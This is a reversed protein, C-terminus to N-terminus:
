SKPRLSDEAASSMTNRDYVHQKIALLPITVAMAKWSKEVKM